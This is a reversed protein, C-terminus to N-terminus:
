LNENTLYDSHVWGETTLHVKVWKGNREVIHVPTNKELPERVTPFNSGPGKRINLGNSAVRAHKVYDVELTADSSRDTRLLKQRFKEMPFAPGPDQKRGPSIEDHGLIHQINYAHVLLRCVEELRSLQAETFTHWPHEQTENQHTAMVVETPPYTRGFWSVYSGQTKNLRGANDLEIGISYLNYGSRGNYASQGAHWAVTNLPVLQFVSGDRGIVLHASAKSNANCLHRVSSTVDAGGTYHIVITDMENMNFKGGMNPSPVYSVENGTIRHNKVEM